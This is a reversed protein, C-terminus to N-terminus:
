KQSFKGSGAPEDVLSWREAAASRGCLPRALHSACVATDAGRLAADLLQREEDSRPVVLVAFGGLIRIGVCTPWRNRRFDAPSEPIKRVEPAPPTRRRTEILM